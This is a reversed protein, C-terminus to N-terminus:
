LEGTVRRLRLGNLILDYAANYHAARARTDLALAELVESGTSFGLRYRDRVVRLNEGAQDVSDQSIRLKHGAEQVQLWSQRAELEILSRAELRLHDLAAAQSELALAKHESAGGDFVEWRMGLGVTWLGPYLQYRNQQYGYGGSLSLQPRSEARQVEAQHLLAERQHEL